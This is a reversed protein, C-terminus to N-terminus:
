HSSDAFELVSIHVTSSKVSENNATAGIAQVTHAGVTPNWSVSFPALRSIGVSVGDVLWNVSTINSSFASEFVIAQNPMLKPAREFVAKEIPYTISL